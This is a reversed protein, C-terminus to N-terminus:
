QNNFNVKAIFYSRVVKGKHIAPIWKPSKKLIRILEKGGNKGLDQEIKFNTLRGDKEIIFKVIIKGKLDDFEQSLFNDTIFQYFNILGGNKPPFEPKVDVVSYEIIEDDENQLDSEQSFGILSTSFILLTLLYRKM